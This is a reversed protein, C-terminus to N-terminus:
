FGGKKNSAQQTKGTIKKLENITVALMANARAIHDAVKAEM